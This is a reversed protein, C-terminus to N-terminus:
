RAALGDGVVQGPEAVAAMQQRPEPLRDRVGVRSTASSSISRSPKLSSLSVSPWWAPSSTSRWIPGRRSSPAARRAVRQRPEAAVLERDHEVRAVLRRALAAPRRSRAASSCSTRADAPDAHVDVGADADREEGLVRAVREAQELAGVDRHVLGLARAGAVLDVQGRAVVVAARRSSSSPSSRSPSSSRRARDQVVLRLGLDRRARHAADLREHAPRVRAAPQQHRGVEQREGVVAPEAARQGREHEVARQLLDALAAAVAEVQRDRDVEAGASRSSRPSGVRRRRPQELLAAERRGAQPQLDGLVDHHGIGLARELHERPSRAIPTAVASSSKPAPWTESPCRLCSPTSSILISRENTIRSASSARSAAITCVM